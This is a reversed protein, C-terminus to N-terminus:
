YCNGVMKNPAARKRPLADIGKVSKEEYCTMPGKLQLMASVSSFGNQKAARVLIGTPLHGRKKRYM